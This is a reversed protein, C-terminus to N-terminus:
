PTWLLPRIALQRLQLMDLGQCATHPRLNPAM